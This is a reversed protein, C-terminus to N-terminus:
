AGCQGISTTNCFTWDSSGMQLELVQGKGQLGPKLTATVPDGVHVISDEPDSQGTVKGTASSGSVSTLVFNATTHPVDAHASVALGLATAAAAIAIKNM